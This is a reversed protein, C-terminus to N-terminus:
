KQQLEAEITSVVEKSQPNTRTPFRAAIDGDRGIVFKEFNWSIPGSSKPKTNQSTLYKYLPDADKGNVDIKNFMDFTVGYNKTCFESIQVSTGPEQAGFQNCPFGLVVLGKDKYKEHLSQLDKYQPTAGCKSATNVILLVKGKYKSLDVDKGDLSKMTRDLVPPVSKKDDQGAILTSCTLALMSALLTMTTLSRMLRERM